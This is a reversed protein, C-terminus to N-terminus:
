MVLNGDNVTYINMWLEFMWWTENKALITRNLMDYSVNSALKLCPQQCVGSCVRHLVNLVRWDEGCGSKARVTQALSSVARHVAAGDARQFMASGVIIMPKKAGALV